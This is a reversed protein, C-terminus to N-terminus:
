GRDLGVGFWDSSNLGRSRGTRQDDGWGCDASFDYQKSKAECSMFSAVVWAAAATEGRISVAEAGIPMRRLMMNAFGYHYIASIHSGIVITYVGSNAIQQLSDDLGDKEGTETM